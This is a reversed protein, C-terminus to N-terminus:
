KRSKGTFSTATVKFVTVSALAESKFVFSKQTQHKMIHNLAEAKATEDTVFEAIGNGIVSEFRYGYGCPVNSEILEHGCDFEFAVGPNQKLASIKRGQGASHFYLTLVGDDFSFGFNLPVIYLGDIDTMALHCVKCKSIIEVCGEKSSIERDKRRMSVM